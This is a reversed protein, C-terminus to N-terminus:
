DAVDVRGQTAAASSSTLNLEEKQGKRTKFGSFEFHLFFISVKKQLHTISGTLILCELDGSSIIFLLNFLVHADTRSTSGVATMILVYDPKYM